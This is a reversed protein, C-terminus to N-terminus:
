GFWPHRVIGYESWKKPRLITNMDEKREKAQWYRTWQQVHLLRSYHIKAQTMKEEITDATPWQWVVQADEIKRRLEEVRQEPLMLEAYRRFICLTTTFDAFAPTYRHMRLEELIASSDWQEVLWEVYRAMEEYEGLFAWTWMLTQAQVARVPDGRARMGDVSESWLGGLVTYVKKERDILYKVMDSLRSSMHFVSRLLPVHATDVGTTRLEFSARRDERGYLGRFPSRASAEEREIDDSHARLIRRAAKQACSAFQMVVPLKLGAGGEIADMIYHYTNIQPVLSQPLPRSDAPRRASAKLLMGWCHQAWPRAEEDHAFRADCLRMGSLLLQARLPKLSCIHEIFAVFLSLPVKQIGKHEATQSALLPLYGEQPIGSMKLVNKVRRRSRHTSSVLINLPAGTPKIGQRLMRRRLGKASPIRRRSKEFNTLNPDEKIPFNRARDGPLEMSDSYAPPTLLKTLMAGYEHPGPRMGEEPPSRFRDWAERINRTARISAEWPGADSHPPKIIRQQITPRTDPARGQLIDLVEDKQDLHYGAEQQLTAASVSRSWNADPDSAEDIGDGPELYPPWTERHRLSNHIENRDKDLGSLVERVSRYGLKDVLLQKPLSTSMNLLVRQADWHSPIWRFWTSPLNQKSPRFAALAANFLGCQDYYIESPHRDSNSMNEIFQAALQAIKPLLRADVVMARMALLLVLHAVDEPYIDVLARKREPGDLYAANETAQKESQLGDYTATCYEILDYLAQPSQLTSGPRLLFNLLWIPKPGEQALFRRCREEDTSAGMVNAAGRLAQRSVGLAAMKGIMLRRPKGKPLHELLEQQEATRGQRLADQRILFQLSIISPRVTRMKAIRIRWEHQDPHGSVCSHIFWSPGHGRWSRTLGTATDKIVEEPVDELEFTETEPTSEFTEEHIEDENATEDLAPAVRGKVGDESGYKVGDGDEGPEEINLESIEQVRLKMYAEAQPRRKSDPSDETLQRRAHHETTERGNPLNRGAFIETFFNTLDTSREPNETADDRRAAFKEAFGDVSSPKSTGKGLKPSPAPSPIELETHARSNRRIYDEISNLAEIKTVTRRM